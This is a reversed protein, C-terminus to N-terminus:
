KCRESQCLQRIVCLVPFLFSSAIDTLMLLPDTGGGSGISHLHSIGVSQSMQIARALAVRIHVRVNNALSLSVLLVLSAVSIAAWPLLFMHHQLRQACCLRHALHFM